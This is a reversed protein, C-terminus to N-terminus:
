KCLVTCNFQSYDRSITNIRGSSLEIDHANDIGSTASTWVWHSGVGTLEPCKGQCNIMGDCGCDTNLDFMRKGLADCWVYGNWWNMGENSKCYKYGSKGTVLTGAGNACTTDDAKALSSIILVGCMLMLIKCM